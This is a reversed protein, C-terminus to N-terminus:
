DVNNTRIIITELVKALAEAGMRAEELSEEKKFRQWDSMSRGIGFLAQDAWSLLDATALKEIRKELTTKEKTEAKEKAKRTFM